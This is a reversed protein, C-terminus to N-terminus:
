EKQQTPSSQLLEQYLDEADLAQGAALRERVDLRTFLALLEAQADRAAVREKILARVEGSLTLYAGWEEGFQAELERRLHKAMFPAVGSTSIALQLPGRSVLAPVQFTSLAPNDVVNIFCKQRKAEAYARRNVAEDNTACVVLLAEGLDAAEFARLKLTLSGQEALREIHKTAELAIVTIRAGSALLTDIKRQAVAGAGIVVVPVNCLNAFLPYPMGASTM